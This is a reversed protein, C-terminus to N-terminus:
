DAVDTAGPIPASLYPFTTRMDEAEPLAGDTLPLSGAPAHAAPLRAGMALRLTIDVVDDAPRRGNPYGANDGGLVGLVNQDILARPVVATDLRLMEGVVANAPQNLGPIGTLYAQVLDWRPFVDPAVLAPHFQQVLEPLTPHTFYTAFQADDKPMSGNFRDKHPLGIFFQNVLPSSLRSVRTMTGNVPVSATTWAGIITGSGTLCGTPLELAISTVNSEHFVDEEGDVAGLLNTHLLDLLEGLNAVSSDTRQGVFVRGEGACGPVGIRSVYRNAYVDYTPISKDGINGFPSLFTPQSTALNTAAASGTPRVVQVTYTEFLNGNGNIQEGASGFPGKNVLPLAVQRDGVTMTLNRFTTTFAFRFTLDPLTDGNNDVHVEYQAKPDLQRFGPGVFPFQLPGYNAILTVYGSRGTEYSRFVYFDSADVRPMGAIAPAEAHSSAAAPAVACALTLLSVVLLRM